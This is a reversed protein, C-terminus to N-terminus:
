AAVAKTVAGSAATKPSDAKEPLVAEMAADATGLGKGKTPDDFDINAAGHKSMLYDGAIVPPYKSACTESMCSPFTSVLTDPNANFFYAVSQRRNSRGEVIKPNVVRHVTSVWSDNTWRAMLDGINIVFCDDPTMVDVWPFVGSGPATEKGRVQLGGGM